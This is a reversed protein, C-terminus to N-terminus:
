VKSMPSGQASHGRIPASKNGGVPLEYDGPRGPTGVSSSRSTARRETAVLLSPPMWRPRLRRCNRCKVRGVKNTSELHSGESGCALHGATKYHTVM